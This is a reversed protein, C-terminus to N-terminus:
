ALQEICRVPLNSVFAAPGAAGPVSRLAPPRLAFAAAAFLVPGFGLLTAAAALLLVAAYFISSAVADLGCVLSLLRELAAAAGDLANQAALAQAGLAGSAYSAHLSRVAHLVGRRKFAAGAAAGGEGREGGEWAGDPAAAGPSGGAGAPAATAALFAADADADTGLDADADPEGGEDVEVAWVGGHVQAVLRRAM